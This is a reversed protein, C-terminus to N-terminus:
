DERDAAHAIQKLNASFDRSMQAIPGATLGKTLNTGVTAFGPNRISDLWAALQVRDYYWRGGIKTAGRPGRGQRRWLALCATTRDLWSAVNKDRIYIGGLDAAPVRVSGSKLDRVTPGM